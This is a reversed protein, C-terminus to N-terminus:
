VKNKKKYNKTNNIIQNLKAQAIVQIKKLTLGSEESIMKLDEYEPKINVIERGNRSEIYSIKYNLNYNKGNIEIVQEEIKRDVCVRNITNFRVGLTGLEKIIKNIIEFKYKPYCLIRIIHSPRSKKTLSPSIQLDLIKEKQFKTIFNGLVEGSVDDVDTELITVQEIYKDLIQSDASSELEKSEGYFLRLVNLFHTFKKQGTSYIIKLLKMEPPFKLYNPDLNVLLAAGTPTVLESDIPGGRILLESQELIKVTAPAPVPLTGHTTNINGGGLPIESCFVKFNKEFGGIKDLVMTVGLIDILTDVSSLEHLHINEILEGHVEAEAQILSNLVNLAYNRASNSISKSELFDNLSSRLTGPTRHDKTEKIDIKLQNSQIGSRKSSELKLDLKSVGSLHKKLEKLNNLIADSEPVLGLLSALLMDGSIGSNTMDIYLFKM